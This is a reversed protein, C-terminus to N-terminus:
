RQLLEVLRNKTQGILRGTQIQLEKKQDSSLASTELQERLDHLLDNMIREIQSPTPAPTEGAAPQDPVEVRTSRPVLVPKEEGQACALIPSTKYWERNQWHFRTGPPLQGFKLEAV